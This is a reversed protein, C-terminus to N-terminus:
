GSSLRWTRGASRDPRILPRTLAPEVAAGAPQVVRRHLAREYRCSSPRSLALVRSGSGASEPDVARLDFFWTARRERAATSFRGRRSPGEEGAPRAKGENEDTEFRPACGRYGVPRPELRQQRGRHGRRRGRCGGSCGIEGRRSTSPRELPALRVTPPMGDGLSEVARRRHRSLGAGRKGDHNPRNPRKERQPRCKVACRDSVGHIEDGKYRPACSAAGKSNRLFATLTSPVRLQVAWCLFRRATFASTLV